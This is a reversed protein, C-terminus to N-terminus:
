TEVQKLAGPAKRPKRAIPWIENSAYKKVTGAAGPLSFGVQTRHFGKNQVPRHQIACVAMTVPVPAMNVRATPPTELTM